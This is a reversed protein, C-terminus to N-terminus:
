HTYVLTRRNLRGVVVLLALGGPSLKGAFNQGGFPLRSNGFDLLNLLKDVAAEHGVRKSLQLLASPQNM